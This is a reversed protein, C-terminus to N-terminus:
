GHQDDTVMGILTQIDQEAIILVAAPRAPNTSEAVLRGYTAEDIASPQASEGPHSHWTGLPMLRGGTAALLEREPQSMGAPSLDLGIPSGDAKKPPDTVLAVVISHDNLDWTGYIYGGTENPAANARHARMKEIQDDPIRISWESENVALLERIPPVGFKQTLLIRGSKSYNNLYIAGSESAEVNEHLVAVTNAAQAMM